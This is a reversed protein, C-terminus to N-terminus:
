PVLNEEADRFSPSWELSWQWDSPIENSRMLPWLFAHIARVVEELGPEISLGSKRVFGKWQAQKQPDGSFRETLAIPAETPWPTGRREFTARMTERLVGAQFSHTQALHWLDFFDKMRSNELGLYVMAQFKEAIATGWRYAKIRPEPLALLSPFISEDPAPSVVDGFGVDVQLTVKAVGLTGRIMLRVGQYPNDERIQEGVVSASEFVLGDESCAVECIERFIKELAAISPDGWAMLDLDRTPRPTFEERLHYLAAGKLLFHDRYPSVSLRYLLREMVFRDLIRQFDEGRAKSLNLLRQRISTAVNSNM